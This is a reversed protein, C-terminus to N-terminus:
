NANCNHVKDLISYFFCNNVVIYNFIKKKQTFKRINDNKFLIKFFLNFFNETLYTLM